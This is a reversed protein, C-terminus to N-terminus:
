QSNTTGCVVGNLRYLKEIISAIWQFQCRKSEIRPLPAIRSSFTSFRARSALNKRLISYINRYTLNSTVLIVKWPCFQPLHLLRGQSDLSKSKELASVVIDRAPLWSKGYFDLKSLFAEGMLTSAKEFKEDVDADTAPVNWPPNLGAVMSTISLPPEFKPSIESPYASIGNDNADIGEIFKKLYALAVADNCVQYLRDFLLQINPNDKSWGLRQAIIDKGFHRFILQINCHM